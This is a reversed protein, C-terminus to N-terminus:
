SIRSCRQEFCVAEGGFFASLVPHSVRPSLLSLLPEPITHPSRKGPVVVPAKKPGARMRILDIALNVLPGIVAGFLGTILPTLIPVLSQM